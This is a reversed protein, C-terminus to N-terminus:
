RRPDRDVANGPRFVPAAEDRADDFPLDIFQDAAEALMGLYGLVKPRWADEIELGLLQSSASALDSLNKDRPKM